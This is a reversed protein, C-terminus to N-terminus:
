SSYSQPLIVTFVTGRRDKQTNGGTIQSRVKSRVHISGGHKDVIGATVWLGLGTGTEGKTTYFPEYVHRRTEAPM